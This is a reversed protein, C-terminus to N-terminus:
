HLRLYFNRINMLSDFKLSAINKNSQQSSSSSGAHSFSVSSSQSKEAHPPRPSICFNLGQEGVVIVYSTFFGYTVLTKCSVIPQRAGDQIEEAIPKTRWHISSSQPHISRYTKLTVETADDTMIRKVKGM